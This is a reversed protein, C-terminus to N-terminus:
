YGCPYLPTVFSLIQDVSFFGLLVKGGGGGLFVLFLLFRSVSWFAVLGFIWVLWTLESWCVWCKKLFHVLAPVAELIPILDVNEPHPNFREFELLYGEPDIAVFGDHPRGPEVVGEENGLGSRMEVGIGSLYEWWGEVEETVIALTVSKPESSSHMGEAEDVLTLYSTPGVRLIKAFGYNAVTDFGLTETYEPLCPSFLLFYLPACPLQPTALGLALGGRTASIRFAKM